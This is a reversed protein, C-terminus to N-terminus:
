KSSLFRDINKLTLILNNSACPLSNKLMDDFNEQSLRHKNIITKKYAEISVTLLTELDCPKALFSFALTCFDEKGPDFSGHGTLIIIELWPYHKKLSLIVERGSLGPMKLDVVAVDIQNTCAIDLTKEGRNAVIVNFHRIDLRRKISNLLAEEDDVLLLNIKQDVSIIRGVSQM